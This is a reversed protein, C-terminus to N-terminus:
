QQISKSLLSHHVKSALIEKVADHHSDCVRCESKIIRCWGATKHIPEGGVYSNDIAREVVKSLDDEGAATPNRSDNDNGGDSGHKEDEGYQEHSQEDHDEQM